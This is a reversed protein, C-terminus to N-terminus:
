VVSKRDELAEVGVKSFDDIERTHFAEAQDIVYMMDAYEAGLTPTLMREYAWVFDHATVPDGNSWRADERLHFIWESADENPEWREAVGPEIGDDDTQHYTVLGEFLSQLINSETVGTALQPDLTAPETGNGLLLIGDSMAREARTERNQRQFHFAVVGAVLLVAILTGRLRSTMRAM